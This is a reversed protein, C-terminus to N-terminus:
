YCWAPNCWCDPYLQKTAKHQSIINFLTSKQLINRAQSKNPPEIVLPVLDEHGPPLRFTPFPASIMDSLYNKVEILGYALAELDNRLFDQYRRFLNHIDTIFTARHDNLLDWLSSPEGNAQISAFAQTFPGFSSRFADALARVWEAEVALIDRTKCVERFGLCQVSNVNLMEGFYRLERSM